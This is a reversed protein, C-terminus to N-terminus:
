VVLGQTLVNYLELGCDKWKDVFYDRNKDFNRQHNPDGYHTQGPEHEVVCNFNRYMRLGQSYIRMWMDSDDWSNVFGEDFWADQKRVMFVSGWIGEEIKDHKRHNFQTSALTSAGCDPKVEFPKLLAELWGDGVIVDNTLLVVYQSDTCRFGRNISKTANTREKEYVHIDAEDSLYNTTTEVIITKFPINTKYRAASICRMTLGFLKDNKIYCPIVVSVM